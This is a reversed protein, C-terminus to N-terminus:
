IFATMSPGSDTALGHDLLEQNAADQATALRSATRLDRQIAQLSSDEVLSAVGQTAVLVDVVARCQSFVHGAHLRASAQEVFTPRTRGRSHADCADAAAVALRWAADLRAAAAAVAPHTPIHDAVLDLANRATRGALAMLLTVLTPARHRWSTRTGASYGSWAAPGMPSAWHDPM